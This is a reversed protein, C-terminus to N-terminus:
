LRYASLYYSMGEKVSASYEGFTGLIGLKVKM